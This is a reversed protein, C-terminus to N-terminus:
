KRINIQYFEYAPEEYPHSSILAALVKDLSIDSCVLEVKFEEVQEVEGKQGIYPKSGDLARFQGLGRSQWCCHDYKGIRGAGANFLAEKVKELHSEPVYFNLKYMLIELAGNRYLADPMGSCACGPGMKVGSMQVGPINFM